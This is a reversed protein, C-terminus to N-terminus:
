FRRQQNRNRGYVTSPMGPLQQQPNNPATMTGPLTPLPIGGPINPPVRNPQPVPTGTPAAMTPPPIGPLGPVNPNDFSLSRGGPDKPPLPRTPPPITGPAPEPVPPVGNPMGPLMGAIERGGGGGSGGSGLAGGRYLSGIYNQGTRKGSADTEWGQSDRYVVSGNPRVDKWVNGQKELGERNWLNSYYDEAGKQLNQQYGLGRGMIRRFGAQGEEKVNYVGMRNLAEALGEESDINQVSLQEDQFAQNLAANKRWLKKKTQWDADGEEWRYKDEWGAEPRQVAM